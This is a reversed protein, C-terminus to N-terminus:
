YSRRRMVGLVVAGMGLLGFTAPEPVVFRVNDIYITIPTLVNKNIYFQFASSVTIQDQGPGFVTNFPQGIGFSYPGVSADLDIRQNLHTGAGLSAMLLEDAFQIQHGFEPGGPKNLAHGFFTVGMNAFTDPYAEPLTLDFLVYKVGPPNNVTPPVIETRAGVFGGVGVTYRMSNELHTVGIVPEQAVTAGLGFFGDPGPPGGGPLITEFSYEPVDAQVAGTCLLVAATVVTCVLRNRM